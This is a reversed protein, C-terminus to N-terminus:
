RRCCGTGRPASDPRPSRCQGSWGGDIVHAHGTTFGSEDSSLYVVLAAIEEASLGYSCNLSLHSCPLNAFSTGSAVTLFVVVM